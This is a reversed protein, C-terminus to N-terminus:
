DNKVEEKGVTKSLLFTYLSFQLNQIGEEMTFSSRSEWRVFLICCLRYLCLFLTVRKKGFIYIYTFPNLYIYDPLPTRLENTTEM